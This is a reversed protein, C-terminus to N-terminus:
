CPLAFIIPVDSCSGFMLQAPCTKKGSRHHKWRLRAMKQPFLNGKAVEYAGLDDVWAIPHDVGPMKLCDKGSMMSWLQGDHHEITTGHVPKQVIKNPAM